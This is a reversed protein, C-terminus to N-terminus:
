KGPRDSTASGPVVKLEPLRVMAREDPRQVHRAVVYGASEGPAVAELWLCMKRQGRFPVTLLQVKAAGAAQQGYLLQGKYDALVDETQQVAVTSPVAVVAYWEAPDQEPGLEVVLETRGGQLPLTRDRLEARLWPVSPGSTLELEGQSDLRTIPQPPMRLTLELLRVMAMPASYVGGLLAPGQLLGPEQTLLLDRAATRYLKDFAAKGKAGASLAVSAQELLYQARGTRSFARLFRFRDLAKTMALESDRAEPMLLPALEDIAFRQVADDTEVRWVVQGDVEIPVLEVGSQPDIAGLQPAQKDAKRLGQDLLAVTERLVQLPQAGLTQLATAQQLAAHLNRSAWATWRPSAPLGPWPRVLGSAPDVFRARFDVIDKTLDAQLSAGYGEDDLLGKALAAMLVARVEIRATIAEAHPFWSHLTTVFNSTVGRLLERPGHFLRATEGPAPTVEGFALRTWTVRQRELLQTSLERRDRPRGRGDVLELRVKGAGATWALAFDTKGPGVDRQWGAPVGPGSATLRLPEGTANQVVVRVDLRADAVAMRPLKADVSAKREVDLDTQAQRWDLGHVATWRAVLRGTQPPLPVEVIAQGDAGTRVVGSFLVKREGERVQDNAGPLGDDAEGDAAAGGPAPASAVAMAKSAMGGGGAGYGGWGLGGRKRLLNSEKRLLQRDRKEAEQRQREREVPDIWSNVQRSTSRLGDGLASGLQGQPAVAAVRNDFVELVGSAQVPTGHADHLRVTVSTQGLPEVKKAAAVEATLESPPLMLAWGEVLAGNVLGGVTVLAVPGAVPLRVEDGKRWVAPVPRAESRFSGDPQPLWVIAQPASIQQTARVVAVSTAVQELVFADGAAPQASRGVFLSRGAVQTLGEYPALGATFIHGMGGSLAIMEREVHGSGEFQHRLSGFPSVVELQFPGSHGGVQLTGELQGGHVHASQMPGAVVGNCGALMCRPVLQVEGSFPENDVRLENRFSLGNGWRQGAGSANGFFWAGPTSPLAAADTVQRWEHAFSLAGLQGEVVAFTAFAKAKGDASRIDVRYEGLELKSQGGDLLTTVAVGDADLEIQVDHPIADRKQVSCTLKQGGRGPFLLRLHVAEDPWYQPQDVTASTLGLQLWSGLHSAAGLLRKSDPSTRFLRHDRGQEASTVSGAILCGLLVFLVRSRM